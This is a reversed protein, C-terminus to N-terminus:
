IFATLWVLNVIEVLKKLIIKWVKKTDLNTQVLAGWDEFAISWTYCIKNQIVLNQIPNKWNRTLYYLSDDDLFAENSIAFIAWINKPHPIRFMFIIRTTFDTQRSSMFHFIVITWFISSFRMLVSQLCRCLLTLFPWKLVSLM